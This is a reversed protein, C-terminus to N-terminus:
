SSIPINCSSHFVLTFMLIRPCFTKIFISRIEKLNGQSFIKIVVSSTSESYVDIGARTYSFRLVCSELAYNYCFLTSGGEFDSEEDFNFARTTKVPDAFRGDAVTVAFSGARSPWGNTRCQANVFASLAFAIWNLHNTKLVIGTFVFM